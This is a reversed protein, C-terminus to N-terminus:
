GISTRTGSGARPGTRPAGWRSWRPWCSASCSTVLPVVVALLINNWFATRFIDDHFLTKYNRLGVFNMDSTFGSWDTLSYYFAQVFPWVVFLLFIALPLGLFVVFFSIRDFTLKRRTKKRRGVPPADTVAASDIM